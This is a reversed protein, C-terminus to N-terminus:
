LEFFEKDLDGNVAYGRQEWYGKYHTDGSLEIGTVWRAWKYGWKGVAVLHFPFGREPPITLGNMKHALLVPNNMVYELPLSTTYGDACHIIVTQAQPKVAAEQLLDKLLIGEWLITVSWGEVCDLRVVKQVAPYKSIVEDYTLLLANKVLGTAKFRFTGIDVRQPGEISNEYYESLPTLREGQFEQIEKM